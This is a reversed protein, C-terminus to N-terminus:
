LNNASFTDFVAEEQAQVLAGDNNVEEQPIDAYKSAVRRSHANDARYWCRNFKGWRFGNLKLDDLVAKSPKPDFHLEIGNKATNIKCLAIKTEITTTM